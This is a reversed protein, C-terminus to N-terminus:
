GATRRAACRSASTSAPDPADLQEPHEAIQEAILGADVEETM